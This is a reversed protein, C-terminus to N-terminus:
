KESRRGRHKRAAKAERQWQARLAKVSDKWKPDLKWGQDNFVVEYSLISEIAQYLADLICAADGEIEIQTNEEVLARDPNCVSILVEVPFGTHPKEKDKLRKAYPGRSGVSVQTSYHLEHVFRM